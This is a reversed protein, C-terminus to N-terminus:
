KITKTIKEAPDNFGDKSIVTTHLSQYMNEKPMAIYDKFRQSYPNNIKTIWKQNPQFTTHTRLLM